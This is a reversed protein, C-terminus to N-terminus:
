LAGVRTRVPKRLMGYCALVLSDAHDPSRGILARITPGSYNATTRDKPPLYLRGEGDYLKPLAKLQALTEAYQKPIAFGESRNFLEAALGYMEARRNKYAYRTDSEEVRETVPLKVSSTKRDKHLHTVSEGFGITRVDHGHRRMQDAHQKGGGGRDFLVQEPSLKFEKMFAITNGPVDSTDQTKIALQFIIGAMDTITWVTDDGGEASDVGMALARRKHGRLAEALDISRALNNQPFLWVEAGKYFEADLSVTQQVNDWLKRRKKYEDWSLVGPVIVEGTPEIGQKIQELALRVNPSDKGRIRIIKRYYRKPAVM